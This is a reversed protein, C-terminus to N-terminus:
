KKTKVESIYSGSFAPVDKITRIWYDAETRSVYPGVRVRYTTKGSVEKTFIEAKLARKTLTERAKEANLKSTFSGTQIWYDITTVTAPKKEVLKAVPASVAPKSAVAVKTQTNQAAKQSTTASSTSSNSKITQNTVVPAISSAVTSTSTEQDSEPQHKTLSSVDITGYNGTTNGGNVITLNINGSHPIKTNLGSATTPEWNMSDQTIAVSNEGDSPSSLYAEPSKGTQTQPVLNKLDHAQPAQAVAIASRIGPEPTHAPTFRILAFGFVLVIFGSVAFLIWLIKKQEM